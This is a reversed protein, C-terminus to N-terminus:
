SSSFLLLVTHINISHLPLYLIHRIDQSVLQQDFLAIIRLLVHTFGQRIQKAVLSM